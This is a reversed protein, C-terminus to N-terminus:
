PRGEFSYYALQTAPDYVLLEKQSRFGSRCLKYDQIERQYYLWTEDPQFTWWIKEEEGAFFFESHKKLVPPIQTFDPPVLRLFEERSIRFCLYTYSHSEFHTSSNKIESVGAPLAVGFATKFAVSPFSHYLRYGAFVVNTLVIVGVPVAIMWKVFWTGKRDRGLRSLKLFIFTVGGFLLFFAMLFLIQFLIM